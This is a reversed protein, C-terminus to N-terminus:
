NLVIGYGGALFRRLTTIDKANVAGDANMDGSVSQTYIVTTSAPTKISTGGIKLHLTTGEIDQTGLAKAIRAKSIVFSCKGDGPNKLQDVYLIKSSTQNTIQTIAETSMQVTLQSASEPAEFEVSVQVLDDKSNGQADKYGSLGVSSITIADAAAIGVCFAAMVLLAITLFTCIRKMM